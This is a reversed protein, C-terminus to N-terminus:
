SKSAAVPQRQVASVVWRVPLKWRAALSVVQIAIHANWRNQKYETYLYSSKEAQLTRATHQILRLNLATKLQLAGTSIHQDWYANCGVPSDGRSQRMVDDILLTAQSAWPNM